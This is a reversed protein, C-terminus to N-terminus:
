SDSGRDLGAELMRHRDGSQRLRALILNVNRLAAIGLVANSHAHLRADISIIDMEAALSKQALAADANGASSCIAAIGGAAPAGRQHESYVSLQHALEDILVLQTGLAGCHHPLEALPFDAVEDHEGAVIYSGPASDGVLQAKILKM